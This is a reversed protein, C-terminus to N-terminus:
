DLTKRLVNSTSKYKGAAALCAPYPPLPNTVWCGVYCAQYYAFLSTKGTVNLLTKANHKVYLLKILARPQRPDRSLSRYGTSFANNITERHKLQIWYLHPADLLYKAWDKHNTVIDSWMRHSTVLIPSCASTADRDFQVITPYIGLRSTASLDVIYWNSIYLM